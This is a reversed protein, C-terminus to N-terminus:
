MGISSKSLGISNKSLIKDNNNVFTKNGVTKISSKSQKIKSPVFKKENFGNMKSKLESIDAKSTQTSSMLNRTMYQLKSIPMAMTRNSVPSIVESEM